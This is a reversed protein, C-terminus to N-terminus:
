QCEYESDEQSFLGEFQLKKGLFPTAVFAAAGLVFFFTKKLM